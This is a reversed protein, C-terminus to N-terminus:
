WWLSKRAKSSSRQFCGWQVVAVVWGKWPTFNKTLTAGSHDKCLRGNIPWNSCFCCWEILTKKISKMNRIKLFVKAIRGRRRTAMIYSHTGSTPSAYNCESDAGGSKILKKNIIFNVGGIQKVNFDIHCIQGNSMIHLWRSSQLVILQSLWYFLRLM